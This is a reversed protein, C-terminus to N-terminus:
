GWWMSYVCMCMMAHVTRRLFVRLADAGVLCCRVIRRMLGCAAIWPPDGSSWACMRVLVLEPACANFLIAILQIHVGAAGSVQEARCAWPVVDDVVM